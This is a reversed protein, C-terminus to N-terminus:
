PTNRAIETPARMTCMYRISPLGHFGACAAGIFRFPPPAGAAGASLGSRGTYHLEVTTGGLEIVMRDSFTVQPIATPRREGVIVSKANEHAVVIATNAFVQGGSIHDAHNHSYILYRVTQNFRTKLENKLWTAADANVPDTAIIGAPTVAFVTYHFNNRFRYVEGAIKTIERVPPPPATQALADATTLAAVALSGAALLHRFKM